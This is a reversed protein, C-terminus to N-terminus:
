LASIRRLIPVVPSAQPDRGEQRWKRAQKPALSTLPEHPYLRLTRKFGPSSGTVRGGRLRWRDARLLREFADEKGARLEALLLREEYGAAAEVPVRPGSIEM